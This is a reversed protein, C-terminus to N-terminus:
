LITGSDFERKKNPKNVFTEYLANALLCILQAFFLPNHLFLIFNFTKTLLHTLRFM